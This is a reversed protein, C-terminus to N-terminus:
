RYFRLLAGRDVGAPRSRLESEASDDGLREISLEDRNKKSSKGMVVAILYGLHVLPKVAQGTRDIM